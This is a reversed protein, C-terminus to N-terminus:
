EIICTVGKSYWINQKISTQNENKGDKYMLGKVTNVRLPGSPCIHGEGTLSPFSIYTGSNHRWPPTM